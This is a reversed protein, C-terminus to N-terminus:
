RKLSYGGQRIALPSYGESELESASFGLYRLQPIMYNIAALPVMSSGQAFLEATPTAM